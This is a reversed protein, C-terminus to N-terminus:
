EGHMQKANPKFSMAPGSLIRIGQFAHFEDNPKRERAIRVVQVDHVCANILTPLIRITRRIFARLEFAVRRGCSVCVFVLVVGAHRGARM